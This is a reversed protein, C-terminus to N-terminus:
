DGGVDEHSGCSKKRARKAYDIKAQEQPEERLMPKGQRPADARVVASEAELSEHNMMM